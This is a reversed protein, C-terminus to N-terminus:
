RKAFVDPKTAHQAACQPCPYGVTYIETGCELCDWIHSRAFHKCSAPSGCTPCPGHTVQDSRRSYWEGSGVCEYVKIHEPKVGKARKFESAGCACKFINGPAGLQYTPESLLSDVHVQKRGESEFFLRRVDEPDLDSVDLGEDICFNAAWADIDSQSAYECVWGDLAVSDYVSEAALKGAPDVAAYFLGHCFDGQWAKDGDLPRPANFIIWGDPVDAPRTALLKQITANM